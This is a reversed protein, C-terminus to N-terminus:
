LCLGSGFGCMLSFRIRTRIMFFVSDLGYNSDSFGDSDSPHRSDSRYDYDSDADDAHHLIDVAAPSAPIRVDSDAKSDADMFGFWIYLGFRCDNNSPSANMIPLLLM